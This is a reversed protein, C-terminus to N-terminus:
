QKNLSFRCTVHGGKEACSVSKENLTVGVNVTHREKDITEGYVTGTLLMQNGAKQISFVEFDSYLMGTESYRAFLERLWERMLGNSDDAQV